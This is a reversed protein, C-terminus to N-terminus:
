LKELFKDLIERIKERNVIMIRKGNQETRTIMGANFLFNLHYSVTATTLSLAEALEKNSGMGKGILELVQFRTSDGLNKFFYVLEERSDVRSQRLKILGKELHFGQVYFRNSRKGQEFGHSGLPTAGISVFLHRAKPLSEEINNWPDYIGKWMDSIAFVGDRLIREQLEVGYNRVEVKYKEYEELFVPLLRRMLQVFVDRKKEPEKWTYLFEWKTQASMSLENLFAFMGEKEIRNLYSALQKEREITIGKLNYLLSSLIMNRLKKKDCLSLEDLMDEEREYDGYYFYPMYDGFIQCEPFFFGDLEDAIEKEKSLITLFLTFCPDDYGKNEERRSLIINKSAFLRFFDYIRSGNESFRIKM